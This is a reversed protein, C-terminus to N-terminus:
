AARRHESSAKGFWLALGCTITSFVLSFILSYLCCSPVCQAANDYGEKSTTAKDDEPAGRYRRRCSRMCQVFLSGVRQGWSWKLLSITHKTDDRNAKWASTTITTDKTWAAESTAKDERTWKLCRAMCGSCGKGKANAGEAFKEYQTGSEESMAPAVCRVQRPSHDQIGERWFLKLWFLKPTKTDEHNAPLERIRHQFLSLFFPPLSSLSPLSPLIGGCICGHVEYVKM